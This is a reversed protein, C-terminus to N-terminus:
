DRPASLRGPTPTFLVPLKALKIPGLYLGGNQATVPVTLVRRRDTDALKSMLNLAIRSAPLLDRRILNAEALAELTEEYGRIDATLAGLPRMGPDLAVTGNARLDLAGWVMNLWHIELTGGSQRWKSLAEVLSRGSLAGLFEAKIRINSIRDGLVTTQLIPTNINEAAASIELSPHTHIRPPNDPRRLDALIRSTHLLPRGEAEAIRMDKVTVSLAALSGTKNIVAVGKIGSTSVTLGENGTLNGYRINQLGLAELRFRRLDWPQLDLQLKESTWSIGKSSNAASPAALTLRIFFPFGSTDLDGHRITFGNLQQQEVWDKLLTKSLSAAYLWYAPYGVAIFVLLIIPGLFLRKSFM